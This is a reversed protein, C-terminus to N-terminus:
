VDDFLGRPPGIIRKEGDDDFDNFANLRDNTNRFGVELQTSIGFRDNIEDSLTRTMPLPSTSSVASYDINEGDRLLGDIPSRINPINANQWNRYKSVNAGASEIRSFDRRRAVAEEARQRRRKERAILDKGEQVFETTAITENHLFQQFGMANLARSGLSFWTALCFAL